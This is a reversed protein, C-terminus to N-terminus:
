RPGVDRRILMLIAGVGAAASAVHLARSYALSTGVVSGLAMGANRALALWSAAIGRAPGPALGMVGTTNATAFMGAGAGFTGLLALSPDGRAIFFLTAASVILSGTAPIRAGVRDVLFGSLPASVAMLVAFLTFLAGIASPSRGHSGLELPLATSVVFTAAYHLMAAVLAPAIWFGISGKGRETRANGSVLSAIALAVVASAVFVGRWSITSALVGGVSPGVVLGVYTMAAQVGLGRGRQEPPVFAVVLSPGSAMLLSAGAAMAVRMAVLLELSRALACAIAALGAVVGGIRIARPPGIRDVITGAPLLFVCVAVLHASVVLGIARKSVDFETRMVHLSVNVMSATAATYFTGTGALGVAAWPRM